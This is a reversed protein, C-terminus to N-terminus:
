ATCEGCWGCPNGLEQWELFAPSSHKQGRHMAADWRWGDGGVRGSRFADKGGKLECYQWEASALCCAEDLPTLRPWAGPIYWAAYETGSGRCNWQMEIPLYFIKKARKIAHRHMIKLNKWSIIQLQCDKKTTTASFLLPLSWLLLRMRVAKVLVCSKSSSRSNVALMYRELSLRMSIAVYRFKDSFCTFIQNWFRRTFCLFSPFLLPCLVPDCLQLHEDRDVALHESSSSSSMGIDGEEESFSSTSRETEGQDRRQRWM